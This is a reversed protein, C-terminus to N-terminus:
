REGGHLVIFIVSECCHERQFGISEYLYPSHVINQLKLHKESM